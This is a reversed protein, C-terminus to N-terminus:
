PKVSKTEGAKVEVIPWNLFATGGLPKKAQAATEAFISVKSDYPTPNAIQLTVGHRNRNLVQAEIHDLVLLTDNDTRLYIGPNELCTLAALTEWAMNSDSNAVSGLDNGEWDSVQVRESVFGSEHRLPNHPAGVYQVANHATDKYMEAIRRDGTARFLKLLFDGSSIYLGPAAHNNQSSAFIAGAAHTGAREMASGKPFQYDYSLMWTSFLHAAEVADDLWRRKGTLEYLTTYAEVLNYASESDPAQLIEAPGGGAYGKALDRDHYRKGAQEAVKLYRPEHFYASADALATINVSGATSGNIELKGTDADVFQGFQGYDSYLKVLADSAIRFMKEWEPKLAHGRTRFLELQKLGFHLVEGTRRVMAVTPHNRCEKFNDGVPKGNQFMAYFLGSKGQAHTLTDLTLFVRRLREPTELIAAPHSYVPPGGWGIQHSYQSGSGPGNSYAPYNKDEFWKLTDFQQTILDACKSFPTVCAFSNAGSIAKRVAFVKTFFAALDTAPFNYLKFRLTLEDGAKWDAGKDWSVGRGCMVYRHSRVGPASVTFILRKNTVDPGADEEIFLGNNGFRTGQEALLIFGRKRQPNFFSLMPTAVNGTNLEIKAHSGDPNLHEVNATTVPMHLPRNKEDYIYSPYAVPLIRFRNGGYIQAPVLIYNNTSWHGFEFAVAVGAAKAEGATVRFLLTLDTAENKSDVRIACTWESGEGSLKGNSFAVKTRLTSGDYWCSFVRMQGDPLALQCAM